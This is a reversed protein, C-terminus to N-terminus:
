KVTVLGAARQADVWSDNPLGVPDNPLLRTGNPHTLGRGLVLTVTVTNGTKKDTVTATVEVTGEQTPDVVEVPVPDKKVAPKALGKKRTIRAM